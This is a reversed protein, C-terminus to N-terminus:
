TISPGVNEAGLAPVPNGANAVAVGADPLIHRQGRGAGYFHAVQVDDGRQGFGSRLSASMSISAGSVLVALAATSPSRVALKSSTFTVFCTRSSGPSLTTLPELRFLKRLEFHLM